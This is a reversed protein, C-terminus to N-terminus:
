LYPPDHPPVRQVPAPDDVELTIHGPDFAIYGAIVAAEDYPDAYSWAVNEVIKADRSITYWTTAGGWPSTTVHDNRRLVETRVDEVPFYCVVPRGPERLFLARESDAVEHGEFLARAGAGVATISVVPEHVVNVM